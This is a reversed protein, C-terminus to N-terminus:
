EVYEVAHNHSLAYREAASGSKVQFIVPSKSDSSGEIPYIIEEDIIKVNDGIVIKQIKPCFSFYRIETVTDPVVYVEAERAAPYELLAKMDKTFLVGDVDCYNQNDDDVEIKKLSLCKFFLATDEITEVSKPIYIEEISGSHFFCMSRITKLTEPLKVTKFNDNHTFGDISTVPLSNIEEPVIVHEATGVYEVIEIENNAIKYKFDEYQLIDPDTVEEEKECAAFLPVLLLVLLILAKKCKM